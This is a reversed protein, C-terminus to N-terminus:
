SCRLCASLAAVLRANDQENRVAARLYGAGLAEFNDCRRLLIGHEQLLRQWLDPTLSPSQLLLFNASPRPCEIGLPKLQRVLKARRSRNLAVISDSGGERLAAMAALGALTSVPWPALQGRVKEMVEPNGAAYAVRLGPMAYFKTVSRFVILNFPFSLLASTVSEHPTYDIFAEDLLITVDPHQEALQLITRAPTLVGSPNQPNALLLSDARCARLDRAIREPRYTFQQLDLVHPTVIAHCRELTARYESFAPVPLLTRTLGLARVAAELLPVFGNSVAIHSVTPSAAKTTLSSHEKASLLTRGLCATFDDLIATRLDLLELDPYCALTRPDRLSNRIAALVKPSPGEPNINASFDLIRAPDLGYIEALRRLQGGHAPLTTM